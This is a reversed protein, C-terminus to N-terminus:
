AIQPVEQEASEPRSEELLYLRLRGHSYVLEEIDNRQKLQELADRVPRFPLNTSAILDRQTM